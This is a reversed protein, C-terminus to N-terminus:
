IGNYFERITTTYSSVTVITASSDATLVLQITEDCKLEVVSTGSLTYPQNSNKCFAPMESSAVLVGDKKIACTVTINNVPTSLSAHWDIEFFHTECDDYKISPGAILSFNSIPTNSFTGLIPYYTGATTVTTDEPSTLAAFVGRDVTKKYAM